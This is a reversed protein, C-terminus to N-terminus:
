CANIKKYEAVLKDVHDKAEKLGSGTVERYRKIAGILQGGIAIQLVEGDLQEYTPKLEDEVSMWLLIDAEINLVFLEKNETRIVVLRGELDAHTANRFIRREKTQSDGKRFEIEVYKKM